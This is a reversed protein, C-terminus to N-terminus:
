SVGLLSEEKAACFVVSDFQPSKVCCLWKLLPDLALSSEKTVILINGSDAESGFLM